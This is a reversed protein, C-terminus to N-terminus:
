LFPEKGVRHVQIEDVIGNGRHEILYAALEAIEDPDIMGDPTLDPRVIKVLDTYVGGPALLHVRIGEPALEKAKKFADLGNKAEAVIELPFSFGELTKRLGQRIKPEDDAILVKWM